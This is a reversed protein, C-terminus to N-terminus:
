SGLSSTMTPGFTLACGTMETVRVSPKSLLPWECVSSIDRSVVFDLCESMYSMGLTVGRIRASFPTAASMEGRAGRMGSVNGASSSAAEIAM